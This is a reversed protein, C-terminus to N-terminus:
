YKICAVSFVFKRVCLKMGPMISRRWCSISSHCLGTETKFKSLSKQEVARNSDGNTIFNTWQVLKEIVCRFYQAPM